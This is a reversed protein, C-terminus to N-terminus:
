HDLCQVLNTEFEKLNWWFQLGVIYEQLESASFCSYLSSKGELAINPLRVLLYKPRMVSVQDFGDVSCVIRFEDMFEFARHRGVFRTVTKCM